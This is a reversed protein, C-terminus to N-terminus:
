LKGSRVDGSPLAGLLDTGHLQWPGRPLETRKMPEQNSTQSDVQCAHCRKSKLTVIWGLSRTHLHRKM